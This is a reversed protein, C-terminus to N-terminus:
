YHLWDWKSYPISANYRWGKPHLSRVFIRRIGIKQVRRYNNVLSSAGDDAQLNRFKNM